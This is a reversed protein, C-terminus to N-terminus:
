KSPNTILDILVPPVYNPGKLVKGDERRLPKGDDGLKSMNSAHVREFAEPLLDNLEGDLLGMVRNLRPTLHKILVDAEADGVLTTLGTLVYAFDAIEKLLHQLADEVESLEEEVLKVWLAPDTSADFKTRFETVMAEAQKQNM